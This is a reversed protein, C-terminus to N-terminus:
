VAGAPGPFTNTRVHEATFGLDALPRLVFERECARPHPLTLFPTGSVAGEYLILDLDLPRPGNRITRVRGADAEIRLCATLLDEPSLATEVLLASNLFMLAEYPAPVDVPVTEYRKAAALIRTGPLAALASQAADLHAACDGLNSGLAIVARAM